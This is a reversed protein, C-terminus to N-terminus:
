RRRLRSLMRRFAPELTTRGGAGEARAQALQEELRTIRQRRKALREKLDRKAAAVQATREDMTMASAFAYLDDYEGRLRQLEAIAAQDQPDDVLANVARWTAEAMEQLVPAVQIDDWTVQSRFLGSDIFDDVDHHAGGQDLPALDANYSLGLQDGARALATRWDERLDTYRVFARPNARTARETEFISNMWAAVNTTERERRFEESQGSLYATDRSRVVETPHRLMTLSALDAGLEASLRTFLDYVWYARTDKIAVQDYALLDRLWERLQSEVDSDALAAMAIEATRPRSDITRVPIPELFDKLLAALWAPEYYGRPNKHDAEVEPQPVHLGLRKLAGGVSSTGSRGSGTILLWLPRERAASSPAASEDPV